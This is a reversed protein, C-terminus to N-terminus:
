YNLWHYKAFYDKLIEKYPQYKSEDYQNINNRIQNNSATNIFLDSRKHFDLCKDSWKLDCFKYIAKSLNKPDSTFNELSISIIRDSYKKKFYNMISLYNDIYLLINEISHSWSISPLFQKYIAFINDILNRHSHIFKANPYINLLLEIYHFNELSKETFIIKQNYNKINLNQFSDSLKKSM